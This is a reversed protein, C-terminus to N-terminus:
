KIIKISQSNTISIINLFYIGPSLESTSITIKDSVGTKQIVVKGLADMIVIDSKENESIVYLEDKFPNPFATATNVKNLESTVLFMCADDNNTAVLSTALTFSGTSLGSLQTFITDHYAITVMSDLPLVSEEHCGSVGSSDTKIVIMQSSDATLYNETFGGILYGGDAAIASRYAEDQLGDGYVQMWQLTGTDDTKLLFINTEDAGAMRHGYGLSETFGSLLYGGDSTIHLDYCADSSAGGFVKSWQPVGSSDTKMLLIDFGGLGFGTSSGAVIFGGDSTQKVATLEEFLTDGYMKAWLQNGLSDTRILIGDSQTGSNTTQKGSILFGNDPLQIICVGAENEVSGYSRSFITDGNSDTRVFFIDNSGSSLTVSNGIAAFGNDSTEIAQVFGDNAVGGYSKSWLVTGASDTKFIMAATPSGPVIESRGVFLYNYDSTELAFESNDYATTGYINTRILQGNADLKIIMMDISGAGYSGTAANVLYNGGYSSLVTQAREHQSGGILRQFTSQSFSPTAFLVIFLFSYINRLM